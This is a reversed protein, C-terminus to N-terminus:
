VSRVDRNRGALALPMDSGCFVGTHVTTVGDCNGTVECRGISRAAPDIMAEVPVTWLYRGDLRRHTHLVAQTLAQTIHITCFGGLRSLRDLDNTTPERHAAAQWVASCRSLRM